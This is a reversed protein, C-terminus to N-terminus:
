SAKMTGSKPSGVNIKVQRKSKAKKSQAQSKQSEEHM